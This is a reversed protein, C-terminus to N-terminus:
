KRTAQSRMGRSRAIPQAIHYEIEALTKSNEPLFENFLLITLWQSQLYLQPTASWPINRKLLNCFTKSYFRSSFLGSYFLTLLM